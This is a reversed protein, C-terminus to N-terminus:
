SQVEESVKKSERENIMNQIFECQIFDIGHDHDEIESAPNHAKTCTTKALDLIEHYHGNISSTLGGKFQGRASVRLSYHHVHGDAAPETTGTLINITM